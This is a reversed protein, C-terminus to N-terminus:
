QLKLAQHSHSIYILWNKMVEGLYDFHSESFLDSKFMVCVLLYLEEPATELHLLHMIYQTSVGTLQGCDALHWMKRRYDPALFLGIPCCYTFTLKDRDCGSLPLVLFSIGLLSFGSAYVSLNGFLCVSIAVPLLSFQKIVLQNEDRVKSNDRM